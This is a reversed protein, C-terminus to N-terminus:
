VGLRMRALRVAADAPRPAHTALGQHRAAACEGDRVAHPAVHARCPALVALRRAAPPRRAAGGAEGRARLPM